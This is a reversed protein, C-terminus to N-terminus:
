WSSEPPEVLLLTADDIGVTEITWAGREGPLGLTPSRLIDDAGDTMLAVGLCGDMGVDSFHFIKSRIDPTVAGLMNAPTRGREPVGGEIVPMPAPTQVLWAKTDGAEASEIRGSAADWSIAAAAAGLRWAQGQVASRLREGLLRLTEEPGSRRGFAFGAAEFIAERPWPPRASARGPAGDVVLAVLEKGRVEVFALDCRDAPVAPSTQWLRVRGAWPDNM